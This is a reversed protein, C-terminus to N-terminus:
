KQMADNMSKEGQPNSIVFKPPTFLGPTPPIEEKREIFLYVEVIKNHIRNHFRVFTQKGESYFEITQKNKSYSQIQWM